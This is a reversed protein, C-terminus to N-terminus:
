YRPTRIPGHFRREGSNGRKQRPRGASDPPFVVCVAQDGLDTLGDRAALGDIFAVPRTSSESQLSAVPVLPRGAFQDSLATGRVLRAVVRFLLGAGTLQEIQSM